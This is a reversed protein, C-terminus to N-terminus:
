KDNNGRLIDILDQKIDKHNGNTELACEYVKVNNRELLKIAKFITKHVEYLDQNLIEYREQYIKKDKKYEKENDKLMGNLLTNERKWEKLEKYLQKNIINM